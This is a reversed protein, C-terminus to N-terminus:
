GGAPDKLYVPALTRPDDAQGKRLRQWGLEALCAARRTAAAPPALKFARSAARIQKAAAASIEGAFLTPGSLTPLLNAWSEIVPAAQPLWGHRPQWTYVAACVRSRGAAAVALLPMDTPGFGHAVIDLTPVGVLPTQNALALGKAVGLGVRLGTYSGPGIAVAIGALDAPALGARHLMLGIAPTLEITQTNRSHWGTEALVATESFLALGTWRTATDIALIM